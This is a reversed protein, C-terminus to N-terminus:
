IGCIGWFGAEMFSKGCLPHAAFCGAGKQLSAHPIYLAIDCSFFKSIFSKSKFYLHWKLLLDKLFLDQAPQVLEKTQLATYGKRVGQKTHCRRGLGIYCRSIDIAIKWLQAQGDGYETQAGRWHAGLPRCVAASVQAWALINPCLSKPCKIVYKPEIGNIFSM